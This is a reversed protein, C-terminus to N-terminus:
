RTADFTGQFERLAQQVTEPVKLEPEYSRLAVVVPLLWRFSKRKALRHFVHAAGERLVASHPRDLLAALIPPVGQRGMAILGEAAVWRVDVDEDSEMAEILAATTEVDAIDALAKAAEWRVHPRKDNLLELLPPVAMRGLIVLLERAQRRVGPSRDELERVIDLPEAVPRAKQGNGEGM